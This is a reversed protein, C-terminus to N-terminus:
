EVFEYLGINHFHNSPILSRTRGVERILRNHVWKAFILGIAHSLDGYLFKELGCARFDDSSFQKKGEVVLHCRFKQYLFRDRETMAFDFKAQEVSM